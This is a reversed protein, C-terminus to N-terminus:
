DMGIIERLQLIKAAALFRAKQSGAKLVQHIYDQNEMLEEYRRRYPSFVANMREFLEQKAQGWGMGGSLYRQRLEQIQTEDAFCKYLAFVSCSDPDKPEEVSQSNTVIKM